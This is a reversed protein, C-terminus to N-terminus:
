NKGRKNNGSGESTSENMQFYTSTNEKQKTEKLEKSPNNKNDVKTCESMITM